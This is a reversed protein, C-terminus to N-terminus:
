EIIGIIEKAVILWHTLFCKLVICIDQVEGFSGELTLTWQHNKGSSM